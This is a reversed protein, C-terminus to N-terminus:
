ARAHRQGVLGMTEELGAICLMRQLLGCELVADDRRAADLLPSVEVREPLLRSSAVLELVDSRNSRLFRNYVWRFGQKDRRWQTPLTQFTSFLERLELKNWPGSFKNRMGSHMWPVLRHDLLPSRNEIGSAMANRDNQWLWEPLRGVTADCVLADGLTGRFAALADKASAHLVDPQLFRSVSAPDREAQVLGIGHAQLTADGLEARAAIMAKTNDANARLSAGIWAEDGEARAQMLAFRYTRDWYGAFLEDGGTGDLVVPVNHEAIRAYLQPMALANGIFPFPKEQHRCVQLFGDMGGSGYDLPVNIARIGLQEVCQGAYLADDSKGADGTFCHVQDTRGSAHLISLILSSDVGGSLLLGVQRDSVLRSLVADRLLEALRSPEAPESRSYAALDFYREEHFQWRALDFTWACGAPVQQIGAIHTDGASEPFLWGERLFDDLSEQRLEPRKGLYSLIPAIESALCLTDDDLHVFLPKKGYRDRAAVLQGRGQDLMCFAWMGNARNLGQVGHRSVLELLVETDGGTEFRSGSATLQDRLARFNYVEGNYVLTKGGRRFPQDSRAALDQISLRTHGAYGAVMPPDANTPDKWQFHWAGTGDPGRHRLAQTAHHARQANVPRNRELVLFLGCM